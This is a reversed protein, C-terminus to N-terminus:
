VFIFVASLPLFHSFCCSSHCLLTLIVCLCLCPCPWSHEPLRGGCPDQSPSSHPLFGYLWVKEAMIYDLEKEELLAPKCVRMCASQCVSVYGRKLSTRVRLAHCCTHSGCFHPLFPVFVRLWSFMSFFNNLFMYKRAHTSMPRFSPPTQPSTQRHPKGTLPSWLTHHSNQM